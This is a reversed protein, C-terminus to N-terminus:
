LPPVILILRRSSNADAYRQSSRALTATRRGAWRFWCCLNRGPFAPSWDLKDDECDPEVGKAQPVLSLEHAVLVRGQSLGQKSEKSLSGFCARPQRVAVRSLTGALNYFFEDTAFSDSPFSDNTPRSPCIQVTSFARGKSESRECAGKRRMRQAVAILSPNSATPLGAQNTM